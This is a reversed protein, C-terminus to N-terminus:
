PRERSAAVFPEGAVSESPRGDIGVPVDGVLPRHLPRSPSGQSVPPTSPSFPTAAATPPPNAAYSQAAPFLSLPPLPSGPPNVALPPPHPTSPIPPTAQGLPLLGGLSVLFLAERIAAVTDADLPQSLDVGHVEAGTWGSLPRIDLQIRNSVSM